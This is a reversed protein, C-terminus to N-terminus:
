ISPIRLKGPHPAPLDWGVSYCDLHFILLLRDLSFGRGSAFGWTDQWM